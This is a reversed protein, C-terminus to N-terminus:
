LHRELTITQRATPMAANVSVSRVRGRWPTSENIQVLKGVDIVGPQGLGTLVPLELSIAFQPGAKGLIALGRQQAAEATTILADTQMAALKDGATGTRKILALVGQATGSTYVANIDPGDRREIADTIIADPALEIDATGTVWNWPGGTSGNSRQPYPHRVQLTAASRHSQLYGGAAQAIAQTVSLPTGIASWANAPVLWDTIGWDLAVGTLDLALAALQQANAAQASSYALERRFPAGILATASRGSISVARKGFAHTQKLSEVVFVWDMGDLTIKIQQPIATNNSALPALQSMLSAPGTASFQWAFSGVDAGITASYLPVAALDPVRQATLNHTTMYFRAPLIFFTTGPLVPDTGPGGTDCYFLLAASAPWDTSFLLQGSPTYCRDVVITPPEVYIKVGPRMADQWHASWQNYIPVSRQASDQIGKQLAKANQWHANNARRVDRLAEQFRVATSLHLRQADQWRTATSARVDRLAEQFRAETSQRLREANQWTSATAVRQTSDADSWLATTPVSVSLANQWTPSTLADLKQADQWTHTQGSQAPTSTQWQAAVKAVVPRATDTAYVVPMLARLIPLTARAAITYGLAVRALTVLAPLSARLAITANTIPVEVTAGVNEFVLNVPSGTIPPASFLLLVESDSDSGFLLEVPQGTLPAGKFLLDANAM